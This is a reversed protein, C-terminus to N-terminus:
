SGPIKFDNDALLINSPQTKQTFFRLPIQRGFTLEKISFNCFAFLVLKFGGATVTHACNCINGCHSYYGCMINPNHKNGFVFLDKLTQKGDEHGTEKRNDQKQGEKSVTRWSFHCCCNFHVHSIFLPREHWLSRETGCVNRSSYFNSM